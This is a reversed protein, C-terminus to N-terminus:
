RKLLALIPAPTSEPLKTFDIPSRLVDALTHSVTEGAPFLRKGKLMEWLVAGFSWIDARKDARKGSAQEPSMYAATGLIVGVETAAMTLTPSHESDGKVFPARFLLPWDWIWFRSRDM